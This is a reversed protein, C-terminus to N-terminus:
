SVSKLNSKVSRRIGDRGTKVACQSMLTVWVTGVCGCNTQCWNKNLILACIINIYQQTVSYQAIFVTVALRGAFSTVEAVILLVRSTEFCM